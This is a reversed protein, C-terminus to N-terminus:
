GSHGSAAVEKYLQTWAAAFQATGYKQVAARARRGMYSRTEPSLAAFRTLCASIEPV